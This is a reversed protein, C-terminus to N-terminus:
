AFISHLPIKPAVARGRGCSKFFALRCLKDEAKFIIIPMKAESMPRPRATAGVIVQMCIKHEIILVPLMQSNIEM